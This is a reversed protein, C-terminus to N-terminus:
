HVVALKSVAVPVGDVVLRYYYIGDPLASVDETVTGANNSITESKVLQGVPNYLNLTAKHSASSFRYLLNVETNSPNPYVQISGKYKGVEQIGECVAIGTEINDVEWGEKPLAVSDSHFTFRFLVSDTGNQYPTFNCVAVVSHLWGSSQGTFANEGGAITDWSDSSYMNMSFPGFALSEANTWTKGTDGSFELYGGAHLSDTQYKHWFQIIPAFSGGVYTKYGVTFSSTNHAPTLNVTDTIIANPKSYASDTFTKQPRGIQWLNPHQSTDVHVLNSNKEFTITDGSWQSFALVPLTFLSTFLVIKKM